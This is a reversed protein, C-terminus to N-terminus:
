PRALLVSRMTEGDVGSVMLRRALFTYQTAKGLVKLFADEVQSAPPPCAMMTGALPGIAVQGPATEKIPGTYSNCGGFGSIRGDEVILTPPKAGAPLPAGDIEVVTWEPGALLAASLKGMVQSNRLKLSGNELGYTRRALQTPCCMADEPGAEIVDMVVDAGAVAFTRIKTRDGVQVTGLSTPAGDRRGVVALYIMEGSGGSNESLMAAAEDGPTGDLNGSAVLDGVIQLRPRSAGGEVFPPGEYVGNQLTVPTDYVGAITANRVQDITLAAPAQSAPTDAPKPSGCRVAGLAALTLLVALAGAHRNPYLTLM